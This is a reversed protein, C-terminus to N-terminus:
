ENHLQAVLGSSLRNHFAILCSVNRIDEFFAILYVVFCLM